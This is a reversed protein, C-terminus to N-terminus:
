VLHPHFQDRFLVDLKHIVNSHAHHMISKRLWQMSSISSSLLEMEIIWEMILIILQPWVNEYYYNSILLFHCLILNETCLFGFQYIQILM